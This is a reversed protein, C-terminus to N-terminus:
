AAGVSRAVGRSGAMLCRAVAHPTMRGMTIGIWERSDSSWVRSAPGPGALRCAWGIKGDRRAMVLGTCGDFIGDEWGESWARRCGDLSQPAAAGDCYFRLRLASPALGAGLPRIPLRM